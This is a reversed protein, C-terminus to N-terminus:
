NGRRKAAIFDSIETRVSSSGGLPISESIKDHPSACDHFNKGFCTKFFANNNSNEFCSFVDERMEELTAEDCFDCVGKAVRLAGLPCFM